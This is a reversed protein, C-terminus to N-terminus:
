LKDFKLSLNIENVGKTETIMYFLRYESVSLSVHVDNPFFFPLDDYFLLDLVEVRRHTM